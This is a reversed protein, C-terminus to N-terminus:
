TLSLNYKNLLSQVSSNRIRPESKTVSLRAANAMIVNNGMATQFEAAYPSAQKEQRRTPRVPNTSLIPLSM